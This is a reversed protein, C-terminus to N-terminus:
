ITVNNYIFLYIHQSIKEFKHQTILKKLFIM